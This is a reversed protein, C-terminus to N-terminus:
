ADEGTKRVAPLAAEALFRRVDQRTEFAGGMRELLKRCTQLGIRTSEAATPRDPIGNSVIIKLMEGELRVMVVVSKGKDGHKLVNSFLNDVVRQLYQLNVCVACSEELPFSQVEWGLSQLRVVHEGLLQELLIVADYEELAIEQESQGFVLFYRFLEDTLSRLQRARESSASLYQRMQEENQYQGGELLELYGMLATLPTRIDHSIATLLGANATWAEQEGQMRQIIVRRMREVSRALDGLEDERDTQIVAGSESREALRVERSLRIISNTLSRNYSLNVVMLMLCAIALAIMTIGSYYPTESYETLSVLFVGDAFAVAYRGEEDPTLLNPQLSNGVPAANNYVADTLDVAEGDTELITREGKYIVLYVYRQSRAWASLAEADTSRIGQEQVYDSLNRIYRGERRLAAEESLYVHELLYRGCVMACFFVALALCLSGLQVTILKANMSVRRNEAKM